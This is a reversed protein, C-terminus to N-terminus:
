THLHFVKNMITWKGDLKLLTFMDTFRRGAWEDLELRVTAVTEGIDIAVINARTEPAPGSQDVRDFLEQIPAAFLADAGYGMIWANDHFAQSMVKGSGARAGDIYHQVTQAIADYDDMNPPPNSM